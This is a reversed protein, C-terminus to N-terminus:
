PRNQVCETSITTSVGLPSIVSVSSHTPRTSEYAKNLSFICIQSVSAYLFHKFGHFPSLVGLSLAPVSLLLRGPVTSLLRRIPSPPSHALSAPFSGPPSAPFWMVQEWLGRLGRSQFLWWGVRNKEMVSGQGSQLNHKEGTDGSHQSSGSLLARTTPDTSYGWCRATAPESYATLYKKFLRSFSFM